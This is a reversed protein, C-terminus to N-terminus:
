FNILRAIARPYVNCKPKIERKKEREREREKEKEKEEAFIYICLDSFQL